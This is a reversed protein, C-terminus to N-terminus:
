QEHVIELKLGVQELRDLLEATTWNGALFSHRKHARIEDPTPLRHEPDGGHLCRCFYCTDAELAYRLQQLTAAIFRQVDNVISHRTIEVPPEKPEYAVLHVGAPLALPLALQEPASQSRQLLLAKVEERQERLGEVLHVAAPPIRYRVKEGSVELTGGADEVAEVLESPNM